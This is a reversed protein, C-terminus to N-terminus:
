PVDIRVVGDDEVVHLSLLPRRAPSRAVSGDLRWQSGCGPCWVVELGAHWRLDSGDVTCEGTACAIHGPSVRVLVLPEALEDAVIKWTGGPFLPKERLDCVFRGHADAVAKVIEDAGRVRKPYERSPVVQTRAPAAGPAASRIVEPLKEGIARAPRRFLGGLLGRRSVDGM